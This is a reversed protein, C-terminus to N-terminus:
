SALNIELQNSQLFKNTQHQLPHSAVPYYCPFLFHLELLSVHQM